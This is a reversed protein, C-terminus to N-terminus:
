EQGLLAQLREDGEGFGYDRALTRLTALRKQEMQQWYAEAEGNQEWYTTKRQGDVADLYDMLLQKLDDDVFYVNRNLRLLELEKDLMERRPTGAAELDLRTRLADEMAPILLGDATHQLLAELLKERTDGAFSRAWKEAEAFDGEEMYVYLTALRLAFQADLSFLPHKCDRLVYLLQQATVYDGQDLHELAYTLLMQAMLTDDMGLNRIKGHFYDAIQYDGAEMLQIFKEEYLRDREAVCTQCHDLLHYYDGADDFAGAELRERIYNLVYADLKELTFNEAVLEQFFIMFERVSDQYLGDVGEQLGKEVVPFLAENEQLARCAEILDKAEREQVLKQVHDKLQRKIEAQAQPYDDVSDFLEAVGAYDENMLLSACEERAKELAKEAQNDPEAMPGNRLVVALVLGVVMLVGLVIWHLPAPRRQKREEM